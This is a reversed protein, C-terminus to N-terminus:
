GHPLNPTIMRIQSIVRPRKRQYYKTIFNFSFIKFFYKIQVAELQYSHNRQRGEIPRYKRAIKLKKKKKQHSFSRKENKKSIGIVNMCLNM